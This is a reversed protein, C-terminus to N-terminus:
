GKLTEGRWGLFGKKTKVIAHKLSSKFVTLANPKKKKKEKEDDSIDFSESKSENKSQDKWFENYGKNTCDNDKTLYM